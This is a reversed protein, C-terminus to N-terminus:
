ITTAGLPYRTYNQPQSGAYEYSHEFLLFLFLFLVLEYGATRRIKVHQGLEFCDYQNEISWRQSQTSM